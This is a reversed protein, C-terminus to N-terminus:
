CKEIWNLTEEKYHEDSCEGFFFGQTPPLKDEEVDKRLSQLDEETLLLPCCNFVDSTGGKKYYLNKMWGELNPHKRWYQLEEEELGETDFDVARAIQGKPVAFSFQDLGM